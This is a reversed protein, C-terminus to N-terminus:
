PLFQDFLKRLAGSVGSPKRPAALSQNHSWLILGLACAFEPEEVRIALEGNPLELGSLDPEGIQSPLRLEQRALEVMGPLKAGGGVLVVGAPLRGAKGIRKLENQVFEFIESLRMETIEGIFRRTAAGKARPDIKRLDIMERAGVEKALASAFTCKIAEAAEISVKLGIALDNTVNSAGVPFVAVDILKGEEYVALGTTGFGVDVLAVGLDKQNRTLISQSSALPGFILGAIEGGATEVARVLSKVAPEFADVILTNVELRSGVMGLPDRIDGVNDVLFEQNILHVITRNPPLNIAQAAQVVRAIDDKYIQYDARSVAVIGRSSQVKAHANGINLFINKQVEPYNQRLEIFVQSIASTLDTVDDVLGKRLGRSPFRLADLLALKGDKRIEGVIAKINASGIDLALIQTAAM